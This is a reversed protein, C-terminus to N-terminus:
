NKNTLKYRIITAFPIEFNTISVGNTGKCWCQYGIITNNVMSKLEIFDVVECNTHGKKFRDGIKVGRIEM